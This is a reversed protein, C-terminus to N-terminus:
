GHSKEVFALVRAAAARGSAITQPIGVGEYAAGALALGVHGALLHEIRAVKELHGVEYQPMAGHWRDVQVLLPRGVAGLLDRLEQLVLGVLQDDELTAAEPDLAGGVFSRMLVAGDPARGPFKSSSFSVALLRRGERRPVVM